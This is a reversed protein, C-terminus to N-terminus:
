RPLAAAIPGRLLGNPDLSFVEDAELRAEAENAAAVTEWERWRRVGAKASEIAGQSPTTAGHFLVPGASADPSVVCGDPTVAVINPKPESKDEEEEHDCSAFDNPGREPM